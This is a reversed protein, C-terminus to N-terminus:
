EELVNDRKWIKNSDYATGILITKTAGNFRCDIFDTYFQNHKTCEFALSADKGRVQGEMEYGNDDDHLVVKLHKGTVEGTEAFCYRCALKVDEIEFHTEMLGDEDIVRKM